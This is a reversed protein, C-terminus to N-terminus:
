IRRRDVTRAVEILGDAYDTPDADTEKPMTLALTVLRGDASLWGVELGPGRDDVPEVAVVYGMRGLREVEDADEPMLDLEFSELDASTPVM